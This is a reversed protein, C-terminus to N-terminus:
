TTTGDSGFALQWLAFGAAKRDDYGYVYENRDFVNNDTENDKRVFKPEKRRQFIFPKIERSTDLLFWMDDNTGSLEALVLIRAAGYNPNDDGGNVTKSGVIRQATARNGPGVVLLPAREGTGMFVNAPQGNSKTQSQMQALAKEFAAQSLKGTDRNSFTTTKNIKHSDSFFAVKDYGKLTFGLPLLAFVIEDPHYAVSEGLMRFMPAYVGIQDDEISSRKVSVTLEFDKNPLQYTASGLNQYQREGLWERMGPIDQLWGYDNQSGSSPVLMAVQNWRPSAGNMGEVSLARFNRSLNGLNEANIDM